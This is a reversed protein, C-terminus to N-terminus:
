YYSWSKPKINFPTVTYVLIGAVVCSM